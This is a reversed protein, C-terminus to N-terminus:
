NFAGDKTLQLKSLVNQLHFFSKVFVLNFQVSFMPYFKFVAFKIKFILKFYFKITKLEAGKLGPGFIPARNVSPYRM